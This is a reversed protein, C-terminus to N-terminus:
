EVYVRVWDVELTTVRRNEHTVHRYVRASDRGSPPNFVANDLWIDARCRVGADVHVMSIRKGDIYFAAAKEGWEIRYTHWDGLELDQFVPKPSLIEIPALWPLTKLGLYYLRLGRFLKIPQFRRGVQIFFGNLPYRGITRLYIFWIPHSQDVRMSHNWFGWGASGFHTGELRIRAEFVGSGWPLEDFEGDAIEVNSYYLAETPGMSMRLGKETFEYRAHNDVRYGWYSDLERFDSYVSGMFYKIM